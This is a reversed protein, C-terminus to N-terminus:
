VVEGRKREKINISGRNPRRGYLASDVRRGEGNKEGGFIGKSQPVDIKM